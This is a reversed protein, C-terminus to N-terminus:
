VGGRKRRGSSLALAGLGLVIAGSVPDIAGGGGPLTFDRSQAGNNSAGGNTPPNTQSAPAQNPMDAGSPQAAAMLPAPGLSDTAATRMKELRAALAAQADRDRALRLANRRGIKWRQYEGDNELVIFSTYETAISYAEGLRVIEDVVSSRSGNADAGKLLRDVRRWAWMRELEPNGDQQKPLDFEVSTTLPRGQIAASLQVNTKGSGKYRGYLRVPMGHYLNPLQQPELDYVEVGTFGIKLDSAVPRMLKRRFASAQRAFNDERSLFAALGGSDDALQELLARNVDNGVGICFVRSGAPRQRILAVLQAREAQETLGDSLIVVNLPRDSDVYKYAVSMAPNLITGGRAQQSELFKGGEDRAAQDAARLKGFATSPSVNFAILEFRDKADLADIFARLSQRSMELKGDNQMSGSVDLVFVYDMSTDQKGLEEGATLSLCFYGDEGEPRTAILDLGSRPRSVHYALVVDRALDGQQAEFSSQCYSPDHKAVAFDKGHSPSEVEVIPVASAIEVNLAFRGSTRANVGPRTTTALPYVYTAWDHDFNLEQYYTVQVKQQANPAIPFIRMEFTRYDTQELLGPDRRREKYSDYIQRAREKEVVEGIMEKGDIWMSFNAVSAGRPVPFTYLAEVQRNETNRFVQTVHTVAIGNNITVKVDHEQIELVGGLGGDAILLGAARLPPAVILLLLPMLLIPVFRASHSLNAAHM